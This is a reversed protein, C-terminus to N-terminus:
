RFTGLHWACTEVLWESRVSARGSLSIRRVAASSRWGCCVGQKVAEACLAYSAQRSSRAWWGIICSGQSWVFDKRMMALQIEDHSPLVEGVVYLYQVLYPPSAPSRFQSWRLKSSESKNHNFRVHFQLV